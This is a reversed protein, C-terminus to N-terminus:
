SKKTSVLSKRKITIISENVTYNLEKTAKLLNMVQQVNLSEKFRCTFLEKALESDEIIIRVDFKRELDKCIVSLPQNQFVIEGKIWLKQLESDVNKNLTIGTESSYVVQESPKLTINNEGDNTSVEVKGEALTVSADEDIYSKFNFKTGLVKVELLEGEVIFPKDPNHNVIFFGEGELKVKREYKSFYSPYTFKSEANLWVKTGDSLIISVRQGKPVEVTNYELSTINSGKPSYKFLVFSFLVALCAVAGYRLFSNFMSSFLLNRTQREQQKKKGKIKSVFRDYAKGIIIEDSYRLEDKLSWIRDMDFLWEENRKDLSMWQEIVKLENSTATHTLYKILLNEDM